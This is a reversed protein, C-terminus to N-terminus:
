WAVNVYGSPHTSPNLFAGEPVARDDQQTVIEPVDIVVSEASGIRGRNQFYPEPFFISIKKAFSVYLIVPCFGFRHFSAQLDGLEQHL